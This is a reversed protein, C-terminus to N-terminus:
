FVALAEYEIPCAYRQHLGDAVRTQDRENAFRGLHNLARSSRRHGAFHATSVSAQGGAHQQVSVPRCVRLKSSNGRVSECLLFLMTTSVDVQGYSYAMFVIM